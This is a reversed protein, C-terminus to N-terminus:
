KKAESLEIFGYISKILKIAKADLNDFMYWVQMEYDRRNLSTAMARGFGNLLKAQTENDSMGIDFGIGDALKEISSKIM